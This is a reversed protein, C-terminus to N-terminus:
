LLMNSLGLTTNKFSINPLISMTFGKSQHKKTTKLLIGNVRYFPKKFNL